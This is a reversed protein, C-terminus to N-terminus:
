LDIPLSLLISGPLEEKFLIHFFYEPMEVFVFMCIHLCAFCVRADPKDIHTNRSHRLCCLRVKLYAKKVCKRPLRM